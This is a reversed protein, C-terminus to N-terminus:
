RAAKKPSSHISTDESMIEERCRKNSSSGFSFFSAHDTNAAKNQSSHLSADESMIEKRCRKSSSNEQSFFTTHKATIKAHIEVAKEDPIDLFPALSFIIDTSLWAYKKLIKAFIYLRLSNHQAQIAKFDFMELTYM